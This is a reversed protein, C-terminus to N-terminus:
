GRRTIYYSNASDGRMIWRADLWAALMDRASRESKGVNEAVMRATFVAPPPFADAIARFEAAYRRSDRRTAAASSDEAAAAAPPSPTPAADQHAGRGRPEPEAPAPQRRPPPPPAPMEAAAPAAPIAEVYSANPEAILGGLKQTIGTYAQELATDDLIRVGTSAGTMVELTDVISGIAENEARQLMILTGAVEQREAATMNALGRRLLSLARVYQTKAAMINAEQALKLKRVAQAAQVEAVWRDPAAQVWALAPVFVFIILSGIALFLDQGTEAVKPLTSWYSWLVMLAHYGLFGTIGITVVFGITKWRTQQLLMGAPTSPVLTSLLMPLVVSYGIAMTLAQIMDTLLQPEMLLFFFNAWFIVGAILGVWAGVDLITMATTARRAQQSLRHDYLEM